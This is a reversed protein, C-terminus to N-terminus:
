KRRRRLREAALALVGMLGTAGAAVMSADGTQPLQATGNPKGPKQPKATQQPKGPKQPKGAEAQKAVVKVTITKTVRAGASDTASYVLIYEGPTATDVSGSELKVALKGDEADNATVGIMPDFAEGQVITVSHADITPVANLSVLRPLVIVKITKTAKAGDKDVAQYVLEYEGYVEIDVTGTVTFKLEGDEPDTATVGSMPDFTEGQVITVDAANITPAQNLGVVPQKVTVAIVKTVAAGKSDKATYTLEYTGVKTSDVKGKVTFEIEGDEADKATVGAKPDFEDGLMITKDSLGEFTPTANLDLQRPNVTVTITKETKLGKKDTASYTVHYEGYKDPNVDSKVVVVQLEGDEHDAATAHDEAVFTDGENITVDQATIVPAQNKLVTVTIEKVAKSGKNDTVEYKLKYTGPTNVDVNGTVTPVLKGQEKDSATVGDMKDFKDGQVITKDTAGQIVPAFNLDIMKPLVTVTIIKETKLGKKDTASYTVRYEGYKNPNVNNSVITVPLTGDEADAATAHKAADFKDGEVITLNSANIVPAQNAKVTLKMTATAKAGNNDTVTFTITYTGPKNVDYTKSVKVLNTITGQEHDKASVGDMPNFADGQVITKTAAVGSITPIGNVTVTIKQTATAGSKDTATYTIDYTGPTDTKVIGEAKLTASDGDDPDTATVGNKMPDFKTGQNITINKAGNIVPPRNVPKNSVAVEVFVKGSFKNGQGQITSEFGLPVMKATVGYATVPKLAEAAKRTIEFNGTAQNYTVGNPLSGDAKKNWSKGDYELGFVENAKAKTGDPLTIQFPLVGSDEGAHLELKQNGTFLRRQGSAILTKIKKSAFARSLPSLDLIENYSVDLYDYSDKGSLHDVSQIGSSYASYHFLNSFGKFSNWSAFTTGEFRVQELSPLNNSNISSGDYIKGYNIGNFPDSSWDSLCLYTLKPLRPMNIKISPTLSVKPYILSLSKLNEMKGISDWFLDMNEISWDLSDRGGKGQFFIQTVNTLYGLSRCDTESLRMGQLEDMYLTLSGVQQLDSLKIPTGENLGNNKLAKRLHTSPFLQELTGLVQEQAAPEVAEAAPAADPSSVATSDADERDVDAETAVENKDVAAKDSVIEDKKVVDSAGDTETAAASSSGAQADEAPASPKNQPAAVESAPPADIQPPAATAQDSPVAPQTPAPQEVGQDVAADDTKNNEVSEVFAQFEDAYANAQTAFAATPLGSTVFSAILVGTTVTKTFNLPKVM